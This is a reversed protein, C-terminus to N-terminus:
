ERKMRYADHCATCARSVAQAQARVAPLDPAKAVRQLKESEDRFRGAVSKFGPADKWVATLADTKVAEPGSGSPFLAPLVRALDGIASAHLAVQDDFPVAGEVILTLANMHSALSRMAAERYKVLAGPQAAPGNGSLLSTAAFLGM